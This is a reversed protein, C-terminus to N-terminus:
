GWWICCSIGPSYNSLYSNFCRQPVIKVHRTLDEQELLHIIAGNEWLPGHLFQTQAYVRDLFDLSWPTRRIFFVGTNVLSGRTGVDERGAILDFDPDLFTEPLISENMILSDADSWFVWEHLALHRKVFGIKAGPPRPQADFGCREVAIAKNHRAAYRAKSPTTLEGVSRYKEDFATM